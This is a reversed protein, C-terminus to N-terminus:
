KRVEVSKDDQHQDLKFRVEVTDKECDANVTFEGERMDKTRLAECGTLLFILTSLVVVWLIVILVTQTIQRANM